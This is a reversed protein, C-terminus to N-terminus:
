AQVEQINVGASTLFARREFYHRECARTPIGLAVADAASSPLSCFECEYNGTSQIRILVATGEGEFVEARLITM